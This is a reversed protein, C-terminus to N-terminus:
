NWLAVSICYGAMCLYGLVRATLLQGESPVAFKSPFIDVFEYGDFARGLYTYAGVSTALLGVGAIWPLATPPPRLDSHLLIGIGVYFAFLLPAAVLIALRYKAGGRADGRNMWRPRGREEELTQFYLAAILARVSM